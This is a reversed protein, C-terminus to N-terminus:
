KTMKMIDTATNTAFTFASLWANSLEQSAAVQNEQMGYESKGISVTEEQFMGYTAAAGQQSQYNYATQYSQRESLLQALASGSGMKIGRAAANARTAGERGTEQSTLTGLAQLNQQYTSGIELEYEQAVSKEIAQPTIKELAKLQDLVNEGAIDIAAPKAVPPTDSTVPLTPPTGTLDSTPKAKLAALAASDDGSTQAEITVAAPTNADVTSQYNQAAVSLGVGSAAAATMGVGVAVAPIAAVGAAALVADAAGFTLASLIAFASGVIVDELIQGAVGSVLPGNGVPGGTVPNTAQHPGVPAVTSAIATPDFLADAASYNKGGPNAMPTPAVYPAAPSALPANLTTDFGGVKAM